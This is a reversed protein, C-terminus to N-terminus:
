RGGGSAGAYVLFGLSVLVIAAVGFYVIGQGGGQSIGTFVDVSMNYSQNAATSQTSPEAQQAAESMAYVGVFLVSIATMVAVTVRM